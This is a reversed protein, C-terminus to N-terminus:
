NSIKYGNIEKVVEMIRNKQVQKTHSSLWNLFQLTSDISLLLDSNPDDSAKIADKSLGNLKIKNRDNNLHNRLAQNTVGLKYALEGLRVRGQQLQM